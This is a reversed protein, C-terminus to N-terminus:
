KALSIHEHINILCEFVCVTFLTVSSQNQLTYKLIKFDTHPFIYSSSIQFIGEDSILLYFKNTHDHNFSKPWTTCTMINPTPYDIDWTQFTIPFQFKIHSHM